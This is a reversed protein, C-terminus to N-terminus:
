GANTEETGWAGNQPENATIKRVVVWDASVKTGSAWSSFAVNINGTALNTTHRAQEVEDITIRSFGTTRGIDYVHWSSDGNVTIDSSTGTNTRFAYVGTSKRMFVTNPSSYTVGFGLGQGDSASDVQALTRVAYGSSYTSLSRISRFANAGTLVVRSGSVTATGDSQWLASQLSTGEFHDFLPFTTTGNSQSQAESNGYYLYVRNGAQSLQPIKIWVIASSTNASEIWYSLPTNQTDTFLIDRYDSQVKTGLYVNEGSDTGTTRYLQIKVQYDTLSGDVSGSVQHSKRYGWGSLFPLQQVPISSSVKTDSSGTQNRVTLQTIFNGQQTFTHNPNQESSNADDGFSWSYQLPQIGESTDTFEVTLPAFGGTPTYTFNAKLPIQNTEETGWAGNQPENATIKRVVVWDASVKTGSAWSSFAVNINGTALNTTHRAQEVEDITIRSFGTTRGIDYVHWSSDGNVTIDSSTGTNTRFAYVGTSKRMFVTNPSSYTVGFGLGQGDSASDVQALTRVAYGSSYTSLSRISRFANAGTLVVRSGSVTATGDSQWLASQLSTGEFHDFLPFTATGNSQSQERSNGYYLYIQTGGRSMVPIRVWVIAASTNTSELWYSMLSGSVTTFRLDSFDSKGKGGLYVNEGSDTGATNWVVLKMQYNTLDGDASGGIAHLKRYSWGSLFEPAGSAVTVTGTTSNTELVSVDGSASNEAIVSLSCGLVAISVFLYLLEKIMM